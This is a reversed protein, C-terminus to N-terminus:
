VASESHYVRQFRPGTFQVGVLKQGQSPLGKVHVVRGNTEFDAENRRLARHL